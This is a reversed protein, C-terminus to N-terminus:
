MRALRVKDVINLDAQKEILLKVTEEDAQGAARM